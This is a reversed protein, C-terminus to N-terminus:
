TRYLANRFLAGHHVDVIGCLPCLPLNAPWARNLIEPFLYHPYKLLRRIQSGQLDQAPHSLRSILSALRREVIQHSRKARLGGLGQHTEFAKRSLEALVIEPFDLHLEPIACPLADM